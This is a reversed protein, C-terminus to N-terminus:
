IKRKRQIWDDIKNDETVLEEVNDITFVWFGFDSFSYNPILDIRSKLPEIKKTINDLILPDSQSNEYYALVMHSADYGVVNVFIFKFHEPNMGSKLLSMYKLIAYDECDGRLKQLSEKYTAWYDNSGWNSLDDSYDIKYNVYRNIIELKKVDNKELKMKNVIGQWENVHYEPNIGLNLSSCGNIIPIILIIIIINLLRIM